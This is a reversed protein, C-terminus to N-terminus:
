THSVDVGVGTHAVAGTVTVTPKFLTTALGSLLVVACFVGTEVLTTAFSVVVPAGSLGPLTVTVVGAVCPVTIHLLGVAPLQM